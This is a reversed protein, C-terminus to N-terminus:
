ESMEASSAREGIERLSRKRVDPELGDIFPVGDLHPRRCHRAVNYLLRGLGFSATSRNRDRGVHEWGKLPVEVAKDRGSVLLVVKGLFSLKKPVEVQRKAKTYAHSPAGVPSGSPRM